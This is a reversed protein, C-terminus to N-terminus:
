RLMIPRKWAVGDLIGGPEYRETAVQIKWKSVDLHSKEKNHPFLFFFLFIITMNAGLGEM